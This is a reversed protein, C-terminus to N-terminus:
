LHGDGPIILIIMIPKILMLIILAVETPQDLLVIDTDLLLHCAVNLRQKESVKFVIIVIIKILPLFPHDSTLLSVTLDAVRTHKVQLKDLEETPVIRMMIRMIRMMIRVQSLGLDEILANIRGKTDRGRTLTGPERM